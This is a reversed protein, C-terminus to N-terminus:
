KLISLKNLDKVLCYLVNYGDSSKCIVNYKKSYEWKDSGATFDKNQEWDTVGDIISKQAKPHTPEDEDLACVDKLSKAGLTKQIWDLVGADEYNDPKDNELTDPAEENLKGENVFESYTKLFRM